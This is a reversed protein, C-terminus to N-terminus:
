VLHQGKEKLFDQIVALIDLTDTNADLQVYRLLLDGAGCKKLYSLSRYLAYHDLEAQKLFRKLKNLNHVFALKITELSDRLKTIDTSDGSLLHDASIKCFQCSPSFGDVDFTVGDERFTLKATVPLLWESTQGGVSLLLDSDTPSGGGLSAQVLPTISCSQIFKRIDEEEQNTAGKIELSPDLLATYILYQIHPGLRKACRSLYQLVVEYWQDLYDKVSGDVQSLQSLESPPQEFSADQSTAPQADLLKLLGCSYSDLESRFLDLSSDIFSIFCIIYQQDPLKNEDNKQPSNVGKLISYYCVASSSSKDESLSLGLSLFHGGDTYSIRSLKQGLSTRLNTESSAPLNTAVVSLSLSGDEANYTDTSENKALSRNPYFTYLSYFRNSEFTKKETSIESQSSQISGSDSEEAM